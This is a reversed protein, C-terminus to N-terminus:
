LTFGNKLEETILKEVVLADAKGTTERMVHGVLFQMVSTKGATLDSVAKANAVLVKKVVPRLVVEDTVKGADARAPKRAISIPANKVPGALPAVSALREIYERSFEMPPIDPEPFYRYDHAEEKDRQSVTTKKDEDWGRNEQQPTQGKDMLESQRQIETDVAKKMFKFSNINKVEVKYPPLVGTTEMEETRLSINAELRMQGKEMDATSIGLERVLVQIKKCFEVAADASKFNPETVIEVLPAGSKNFDVLTKGGQHFSKATDEEIHVRRINIVEGSDLIFKGEGCLPQQYQSIQYGKPLDPYFYHKRDFRSVGNIKCGLRHGLLHTKEVAERNPVPLAGPLGLCTPCTHSNPSAGFIVANCGCFMKKATTLHLHVELGLVLKYM